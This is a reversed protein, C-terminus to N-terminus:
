IGNIEDIKIERALPILGKKIDEFLESAMEMCGDYNTLDWSRGNRQNIYLSRAINKIIIEENM